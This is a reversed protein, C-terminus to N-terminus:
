AAGGKCAAVRYFLSFDAVFEVHCSTKKREPQYDDEEDEEPGYAEVKTVNGRVM